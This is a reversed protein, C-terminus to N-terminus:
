EDGGVTKPVGYFEDIPEPALELLRERSTSPRPTDDRLRDLAAGAPAGAQAAVGATPEVDSVDLRALVEFQELIRRFQAAHASTEREDLSLRALAAVHRLTTLDSDTM